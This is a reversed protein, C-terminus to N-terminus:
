TQLSFGEANKERIDMTIKCNALHEYNVELSYDVNVRINKEAEQLHISDAEIGILINGYPTAYNTINKKKEEFVMNVNVLGHKTIYFGKDNFKIINKTPEQYGELREEYVVYHHNNRKYYDGATVTEIRNEDVDAEFQLGKISILVEKTM